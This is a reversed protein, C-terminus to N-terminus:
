TVPAVPGTGNIPSHGPRQDAAV